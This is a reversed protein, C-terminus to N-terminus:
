RSSNRTKPVVSLSQPRDAKWIQKGSQTDLAVIGSEPGDYESAVILRGDVVVPSSGFGFVYKKPTFGIARQQWLQDGDLDFATVWVADHYHFLAFVRQCDSAVTASAFTNKPHLKATLGDRHAVKDAILEGTLRNYILLSQTQLQLDATALYIRDGVVTPSAHGRGPVPVVWALNSTESWTEPATVGDAAHNDGTPGRWQPWDQGQMSPSLFVSLLVVCLVGRM